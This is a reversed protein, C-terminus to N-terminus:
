LFFYSAENSILSSSLSFATLSSPMIGGCPPFIQPILDSVLIKHNRERTLCLCNCDQKIVWDVRFDKDFSERLLCYCTKSACKVRAIIKGLVKEVQRLIFTGRSHRSRVNVRRIGILKNWPVNGVLRSRLSGCSRISEQPHLNWDGDRSSIVNKSFCRLNWNKWWAM